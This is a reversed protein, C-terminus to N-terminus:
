RGRKRKQPAIGDVFLRSLDAIIRVDDGAGYTSRAGFLKTLIFYQYFAMYVAIFALAPDTGGSRGLGGIRSFHPGLVARFKVDLNSFVESIHKGDFEVVDVYMLKMYDRYRDVNEAIAEGMKPLDNPFDCTRLYRVFANDSTLFDTSLRTLVSQFLSLKDPFYVYLNGLSVEAQEAIMRVSVGHYGCRVFCALAANEIALRNQESRAASLKPM